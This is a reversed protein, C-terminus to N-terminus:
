WNNNCFHRKITYKTMLVPKLNVKLHVFFKKNHIETGGFKKTPVEKRNNTNKNGWESDEESLTIVVIQMVCGFM